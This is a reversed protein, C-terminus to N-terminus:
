WIYIKEMFQIKETGTDFSLTIYSPVMYTPPVKELWNKGSSSAGVQKLLPDRRSLVPNKGLRFCLRLDAECCSCLQDAVKHESRPYYM